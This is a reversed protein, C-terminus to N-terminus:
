VVKLPFFDAVVEGIKLILDVGMLSLSTGNLFDRYVFKDLTPSKVGCNLLLNKTSCFKIQLNRSVYVSYLGWKGSLIQTHQPSPSLM